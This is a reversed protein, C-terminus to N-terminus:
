VEPIFLITSMIITPIIYFLYFPIKYARDDPLSGTAKAIGNIVLGGSNIALQYTSVVLGRVPGPVIESQYVPVIALEMGVYIYNLIRGALIHGYTNATIVVSAPLFAYVSMCFM